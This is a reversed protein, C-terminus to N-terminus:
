RSPRTPFLYWVKRGAAKIRMETKVQAMLFVVFDLVGRELCVRQFVTGELMDFVCQHRSLDAAWGIEM